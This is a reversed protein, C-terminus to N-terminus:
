YRRRQLQGFSFEHDETWSVTVDRKVAEWASFGSVQRKKLDEKGKREQRLRVFGRGGRSDRKMIIRLDTRAGKHHTFSIDM